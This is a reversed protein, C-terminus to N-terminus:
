ETLMTTENIRDKGHIYNHNFLFHRMFTLMLSALDTDKNGSLRDSIKCHTLYAQLIVMAFLIAFHQSLYHTKSLCYFCLLLLFDFM